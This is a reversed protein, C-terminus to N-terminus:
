DAPNEPATMGDSPQDPRRDLISLYRYTSGTFQITYTSERLLKSGSEDAFVDVQLTMKRAADDFLVERLVPYIPATPAMAPIGFTGTTFSFRHGTLYQDLIARIEEVSYSWTGHATVAQREEIELACIGAADRAHLMAVWFMMLQADNVESPNAFRLGHPYFSEIPEVFVQFLTENSSASAMVYDFKMGYFEGYTRATHFGDELHLVLQEVDDTPYLVAQDLASSGTHEPTLKLPEGAIRSKLQNQDPMEEHDDVYYIKGELVMTTRIPSVPHTQQPDPVPAPQVLRPLAVAAGCILLAMVAATALWRRWPRVAPVTHEASDVLDAGIHGIADFLFEKNM